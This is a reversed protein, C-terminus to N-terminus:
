APAGAALRVARAARGPRCPLGDVSRAATCARSSSIRNRRPMNRMTVVPATITAATAPTVISSVPPLPLVGASGTASGDDEADDGAEAFGFLPDDRDGRRASRGRVEEEVITPTGSVGGGSVDRGRLVAEM